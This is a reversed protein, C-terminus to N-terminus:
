IKKKRGLVWFALFVNGSIEYGDSNVSPHQLDARSQQGHKENKVIVHREGRKMERPRLGGLLPVM